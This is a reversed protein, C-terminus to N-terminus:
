IVIYMGCLMDNYVGFLNERECRMYDIYNRCYCLLHVCGWVCVIWFAFVHDIESPASYAREDRTLWYADLSIDQKSALPHLAGGVREAKRRNKVDDRPGRYNRRQYISM